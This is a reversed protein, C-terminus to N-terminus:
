KGYQMVLKVIADSNNETETDEKIKTLADIFPQYEDKTVFIEFKKIDSNLYDMAFGDTDKYDQNNTKIDEAKDINGFDWVPLSVGWDELLKADYENAIIDWDWEGFNSNDKILLEDCIEEYTKSPEGMSIREANTKEYMAKTFIVVPLETLGIQKAANYRMNGGLIKMDVDVIIPRLNLMEPFEKISKVLKDFKGDKIFRPNKDNLIIKEIAIQKAAM